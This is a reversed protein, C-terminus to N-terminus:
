GTVPPTAVGVVGIKHPPPKPCDFAKRITVRLIGRRRPTLVFLARGTRGTTRVASVGPGRVFVQVGRVPVRGLHVRAFVFVRKDVTATRHRVSLTHCADPPVLPPEPKVLTNTVTCLVHEGASLTFSGDPACDGGITTTYRSTVQSVAVEGVRHHGVPVVVAGTSQGCALYFITEDFELQFRGQTGAPLCQKEIEVTGTEDPPEPPSTGTNVNTITCTAQQGAALTVSGDAACAGGITTTYDGLSTGTGASESVHHQGAPVAVPGFSEGCAVDTQTQDDVSLNFRGGDDAPDCIKTVTLEAPKAGKHVNV